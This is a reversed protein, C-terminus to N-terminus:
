AGTGSGSQLVQIAWNLLRSIHTVVLLIVVSLVSRQYSCLSVSDMNFAQVVTRGLQSAAVIVSGISCPSGNDSALMWPLIFLEGRAM